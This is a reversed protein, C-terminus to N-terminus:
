YIVMKMLELHHPVRGVVEQHRMQPDEIAEVKAPLKQKDAQLLQHILHASSGLFIFRFEGELVIELIAPAQPQQPLQVLHHKLQRHPSQAPRLLVPDQMVQLKEALKMGMDVLSPGLGCLLAELLMGERVPLWFAALFQVVQLHLLLTQPAIRITTLTM